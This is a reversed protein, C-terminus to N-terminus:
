PTRGPLLGGGPARGAGPALGIVPARGAEPARGAGPALGVVPLGGAPALRGTMWGVDLDPPLVPVGGVLPEDLPELLPVARVFPAAGAPAEGEFPAARSPAEEVFPAPGDNLLVEEVPAASPADVPDVEAPEPDVCDM